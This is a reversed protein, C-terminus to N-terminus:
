DLQPRAASPSRHHETIQSSSSSPNPRAIHQLPLSQSNLPARRRSEARNISLWLRNARSFFRPPASHEVVAACLTWPKSARCSSAVRPSTGKRRQNRCCYLRRPPEPLPRAARRADRPAGLMERRTPM